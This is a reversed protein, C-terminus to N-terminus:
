SALLTLDTLSDPDDTRFGIRNTIAAQTHAPKAAEVVSRMEAATFADLHYALPVRVAFRFVREPTETVLSPAVEHVTAEDGSLLATVARAIAQPTGGRLARWRALLRARRADVGLYRDVTLGLMTEWEDLLETATAPYMEDIAARVRARMTALAAGFTLLDAAHASDDPGQYATGLNTGIERAFNGGDGADTPLSVRFRM